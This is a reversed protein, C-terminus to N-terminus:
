GNVMQEVAARLEDGHLDIHRLIGERDILWTSHM